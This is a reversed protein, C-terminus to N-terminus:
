DIFFTIADNEKSYKWDYDSILNEDVDKGVLSSMPILYYYNGSDRDMELRMDYSSLKATDYLPMTKEKEGDERVLEMIRNRSLIM